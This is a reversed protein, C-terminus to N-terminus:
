AAATQRFAPSGIVRELKIAYQPDTAYGAAQLGRAFGAAEQNGLVRTYRPTDTLIRAYDQFAEDYSAYARFREVRVQAKGVIVETTSADVTEGQWGAGAKIGFINFSSSGDARRPESRGWGTELAAQAVMFHAPIGTRLSAANAAPLMREVFASQAAPAVGPAFTPAPSVASAPAPSPNRPSLSNKAADLPLPAALNPKLLYERAAPQLPLPGAFPEAPLNQRALQAEIMAALGTGHSSSGMAKGLQQDLLSEYLRTQESHFLGESPTADRMSKLVMQLFLAEFEKAVAKNAEPDGTRLRGKLTTLSGVDFINSTASLTSLDQNAVM